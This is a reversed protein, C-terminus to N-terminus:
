TRPRRPACGRASSSPRQRAAARARLRLEDDSEDHESAHRLYGALESHLRSSSAGSRRGAGGDALAERQLAVARGAEFADGAAAAAQACCTPARCAPASPPTPCATGCSSRASSTACRRATPSCAGPPSGPRSPRASRARCTTRPAGTAPWSPPSRDRAPPRRAAGPRAELVEALAAHLATREGPCCTRTSRRASSRTASRTRGTPTAHRPGPPRRGRARGGAARGDPLTSIAALLAHSMPREVVAAVRVVEQAAAPLREFRGLLADRLTEPLEGCGDASAALLEETYLPNGQGRAYLRDALDDDAPGDLIGALQAAVEDRSFREVAIRQVGPVRELEALVPRLPHRRHLEDSRYTVLLCLPETRASRVLFVLFDRTSPIPGTCTRSCSRSRAPRPRPARAAGAPGRVAAGPQRARRRRRGTARVRPDARGARRAHRRAARPRRRVRGARARGPAARRGAPRVPLRHRRAGPLARDARARGRRTARAEFEAVLRSKGVGSEGAVFAFAPVGAAARRARRRAAALEDARGVFTASSVRRLVVDMISAPEAANWGPLDSVPRRRTRPAPRALRLGPLMAAGRRPRLLRRRPIRRRAALPRPATRPSSTPSQPSFQVPHM